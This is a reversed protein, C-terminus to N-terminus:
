ETAMEAVLAEEVRRDATATSIPEVADQVVVAVSVPVTEPVKAAVTVFLAAMAALVLTASQTRVVIEAAFTVALGLVERAAVTAEDTTTPVQLAVAVGAIVKECVTAAGVCVTSEDAHYQSRLVILELRHASPWYLPLPLPVGTIWPL